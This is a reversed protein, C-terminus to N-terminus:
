RGGSHLIINMWRLVGCLVLQCRHDLSLNQTTPSLVTQELIHLVIAKCMKIVNGVLLRVRIVPCTEGLSSIMRLRGATKVLQLKEQVAKVAYNKIAAKYGM